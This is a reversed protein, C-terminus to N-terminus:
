VRDFDRITPMELLTKVAARFEERTKPIAVGGIRSNAWRDFDAMPVSVQLEDTSSVRWHRDRGRLYYKHYEKRGDPRLGNERAWHLWQKPLKDVTSM